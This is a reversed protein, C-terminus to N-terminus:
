WTAPKGISSGDPLRLPDAFQHSLYRQLTIRFCRGSCLKKLEKNVRRYPLLTIIPIHAFLKQACRIAPALDTDGTVLAIAGARGTHCLELLMVGIAVDTEKEEAKQFAAHCTPCRVDKLRFHGLHVDVATSSLCTMYHRHRSQKDASLHNPPASFYHVGGLEVESRLVGAIDPLYSACLGRLDLWKTTRGGSDFQGCVLSHYLNFGDVLFAVRKMAPAESDM